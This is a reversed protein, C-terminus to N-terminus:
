QKHEQYEQVTLPEDFHPLREWANRTILKNEPCCVVTSHFKNVWGLRRAKPEEWEAILDIFSSHKLGIYAGNEQWTRSRWSKSTPEYTAGHVSEQNNDDFRDVAYIEVKKGKRTKYFKGKEIKM